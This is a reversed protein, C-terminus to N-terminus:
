TVVRHSCQLHSASFAVEPHTSFSNTDLLAERTALRFHSASCFSFPLKGLLLAGDCDAPIRAISNIHEVNPM